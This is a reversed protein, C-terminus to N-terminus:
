EEMVRNELHLLEEETLHKSTESLEKIKLTAIQKNIVALQHELSHALNCNGQSSLEHINTQLVLQISQARRLLYGNITTDQGTCIDAIM